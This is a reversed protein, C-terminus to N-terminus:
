SPAKHAQGDPALCNAASSHWGRGHPSLPSIASTLALLAVAIVGSAPQGIKAHYALAASTM